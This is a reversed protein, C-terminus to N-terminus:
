DIFDYADEITEPLMLSQNRRNITEATLSTEPPTEKQRAAKEEQEKEYIVMANQQADALPLSPNEGFQFEQSQRNYRCYPIDGAWEELAKALYYRPNQTRIGALCGAPVATGRFLFFNDKIKEGAITLATEPAYGQCCLATACTAVAGEIDPNDFISFDRRGGDLLPMDRITYHESDMHTEIQARYAKRTDEPTTNWVAYQSLGTDFDGSLDTLLKLVGASKAVDSGFLTEMANANASCFLLADRMNAKAAPNELLTPTAVRLTTKLNSKITDRVESAGPLPIAMLRSVNDLNGDAIEQQLAEMLPARVDDAKVPLSKIFIGDVSDGYNKWNRLARVVYDNAIAAKDAAEKAKLDEKMQRMAARTRATQASEIHSLVYPTYKEYTLADDPADKRTREVMTLWGDADERQIHDLITTRLEKTLFQRNYAAAMSAYTQMDLLTDATSVTGDMHTQITLGAMLSSFDDKGLHGSEILEKAWDELLKKRHEPPLGMLRPTNWVTQAEEIVRTMTGGGEAKLQPTNKTIDGLKSETESLAVTIDEQRRKQQHDSWLKNLNVLSGENFGTDFAYPNLAVSRYTEQKDKAFAAYRKAEEDMNKAPNMGYLEDYELKTKGSLFSGRLKDAYARFYPNATDDVFGYTQAVDITGLKEIDEPSMSELLRQANEYGTADLMKEHNVMYSQLAGSLRALGDGLSTDIAAKRHTINIGNYKGQYGADPQPTFQRATGIAGSISTPM